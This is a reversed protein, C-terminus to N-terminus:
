DIDGGDGKGEQEDPKQRARRRAPKGQPEPAREFGVQLNRIEWEGIPAEHEARLYAVFGDIRQKVQLFATNLRALHQQQAETLPKTNQNEAM